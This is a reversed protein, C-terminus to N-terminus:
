RRRSSPDDPGFVDVAERLYGVVDDIHADAATADEIWELVKNGGTAKALQEKTLNIKNLKGM